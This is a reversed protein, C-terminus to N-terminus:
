ETGRNAYEIPEASPHQPLEFGLKGNKTLTSLTLFSECYSGDKTTGDGRYTERM